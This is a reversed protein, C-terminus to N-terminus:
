DRPESGSERLHYGHDMMLNELWRPLRPLPPFSGDEIGDHLRKIWGVLKGENRRLENVDNKLVAIEGEYAEVKSEVEVLRERYDNKLEKWEQSAAQLAELRTRGSASTAETWVKVIGFVSTVLGLLVGVIRLLENLM